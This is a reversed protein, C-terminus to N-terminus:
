PFKSIPVGSPRPPVPDASGAKMYFSMAAFAADPLASPRAAAMALKRVDVFFTDIDVPKGIFAHTIPLDPAFGLSEGLGM